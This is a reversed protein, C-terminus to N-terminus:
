GTYTGPGSPSAGITISPDNSVPRGGPNRGPVGSSKGNARFEPGSGSGGPSRNSHRIVTLSSLWSSQRRLRQMMGDFVGSTAIALPQSALVILRSGPMTSTAPAIVHAMVAEGVPNGDDDYALLLLSDAAAPDDAVIAELARAAEVRSDFSDVANMAEDMIMFHM